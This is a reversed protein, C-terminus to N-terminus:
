VIRARVNFVVRGLILIVDVDWVVVSFERM